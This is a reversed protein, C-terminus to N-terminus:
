EREVGRKSTAPYNFLQKLKKFGVNEVQPLNLRDKKEILNFVQSILFM